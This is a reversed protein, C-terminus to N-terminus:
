YDLGAAEPQGHEVPHIYTGREGDPKEEEVPFRNAEAFADHRIGMVQWSVRMDPEGGAIQFRNDQIEQAVHLNPGPGGLPTLQYRFTENLAEFWTPLTVWAEGSADLEVVGDYINKMDPSEVFSHYLYRNEPDLPHDIKFAGGGKTLSGTVNVKGNFYGAWGSESKGHVGVSAFDNWGTEGNAHDATARGFVGSRWGYDGYTRGYVGHENTSTGFVGNDNKSDGRVGATDTSVGYVGVGKTGLGYVGTSDSDAGTAQGFVGANGGQGHVGYNKVSKGTVAASSTSNALMAMSNSSVSLGLGSGTWREGWHDHACTLGATPAAVSASAVSLNASLQQRPDLTTFDVEGAGRVGV